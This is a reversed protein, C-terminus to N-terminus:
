ELEVAASSYLVYSLKMGNDHEGDIVFLDYDDAENDAVGFADVAKRIVDMGTALKSLKLKRAPQPEATYDTEHLTVKLMLCFCSVTSGNVLFSCHRACSCSRGCCYKKCVFTV